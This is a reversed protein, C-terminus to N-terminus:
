PAADVAIARPAGPTGRSLPGSECGLTAYEQWSGAHTIAGRDAIGLGDSVVLRRRGGCRIHVERPAPVETTVIQTLRVAVAAVVRVGDAQHLIILQM